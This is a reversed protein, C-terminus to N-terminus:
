NSGSYSFDHAAQSIDVPHGAGGRATEERAARAARAAGEASGNALFALRFALETGRSGCSLDTLISCLVSGLM